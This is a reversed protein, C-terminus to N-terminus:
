MSKLAADLQEEYAKEVNLWVNTTNEPINDLFDNVTTKVEELSIGKFRKRTSNETTTNDDATMEQTYSAYVDFKM